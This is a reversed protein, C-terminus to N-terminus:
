SHRKGASGMGSSVLYPPRYAEREKCLGVIEDRTRGCRLRKEKKRPRPKYTRKAVPRLPGDVVNIITTETGFVDRLEKDLREFYASEARGM